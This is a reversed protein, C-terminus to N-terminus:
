ILQAAFKQYVEPSMKLLEIEVEGLEDEPLVVVDSGKQSVWRHRLRSPNREATPSTADPADKNPAVCEWGKLAESLYVGKDETGKGHLEMRVRVSPHITEETHVLRKETSNNNRPDTRTYRGPTRTQSGALHYFASFSDYVRGLAWPRPPESPNLLKYFQENRKRQDATYSPDVELIGHSQLNSIMWALTLDAIGTDEYSGGINAHM